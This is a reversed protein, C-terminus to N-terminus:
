SVDDYMEGSPRNVIRKIQETILYMWFLNMLASVTLALAIFILLLDKTWPMNESMIHDIIWPYGYGFLIYMQFILRGFLFSIFIVFVNILACM